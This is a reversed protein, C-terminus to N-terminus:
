ATATARVAEVPEPNWEIAEVHQLNRRACEQAAGFSHLAPGGCLVGLQFSKLETPFISDGWKEPTTVTWVAPDFYTDFEGEADEITVVGPALQQRRLPTFRMPQNNFQAFYAALRDDFSKSM